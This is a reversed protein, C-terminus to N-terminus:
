LYVSGETFQTKLRFEMTAIREGARIGCGEGNEIPMDVPAHVKRSHRRENERIMFSLAWIMLGYSPELM